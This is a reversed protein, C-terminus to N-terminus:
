FIWDLASPKHRSHTSKLGTDITKLCNNSAKLHNDPRKLDGCILKLRIYALMLDNHNLILHGYIRM